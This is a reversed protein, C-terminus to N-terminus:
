AAEKMAQIPCFLGQLLISSPSPSCLRAAHKQPHHPAVLSTSGRSPVGHACAPAGGPQIGWPLARM